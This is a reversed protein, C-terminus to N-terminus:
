HSFFKLLFINHIQVFDSILYIFFQACRGSVLFLDLSYLVKIQSGICCLLRFFSASPIAAFLVAVKFGSAVKLSVPVPYYMGTGKSTEHIFCLDEYVMLTIEVPCSHSV